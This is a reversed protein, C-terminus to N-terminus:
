MIPHAELDEQEEEAPNEQVGPVNLYDETLSACGMGFSLLAALLMLFVVLRSLNM